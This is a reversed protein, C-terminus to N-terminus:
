FSANHSWVLISNLESFSLFFIFHFSFNQRVFDEWPKMALADTCIATVVVTFRYFITQNHTDEWASKNVLLRKNWRKKLKHEQLIALLNRGERLPSKFFAILLLSLLDHKQNSTTARLCLTSYVRFSTCKGDRKPKRHNEREQGSLFTVSFYVM